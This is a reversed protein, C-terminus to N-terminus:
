EINRGLLYWRLNKISDVSDSVFVCRENPFSVRDQQDAIDIEDNFLAWPFIRLWGNAFEITRVKIVSIILSSNEISAEISSTETYNFGDCIVSDAKAQNSWLLFALGILVMAVILIIDTKKMKDNVM